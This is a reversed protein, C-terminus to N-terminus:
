AEKKEGIINLFSFFLIHSHNLPWCLTMHIFYQLAVYVYLWIIHLIRCASSLSQTLSFITKVDIGVRSFFDNRTINYTDWLIHIYKTSKNHSFGSKKWLERVWEKVHGWRWHKEEKHKANEVENAKCYNWKIKYIKQTRKM